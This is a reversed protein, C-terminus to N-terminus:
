PQLVFYQGQDTIEDQAPLKEVYSYMYWEITPKADSTSLHPAQPLFVDISSGRIALPLRDNITVLKGKDNRELTAQYTQKGKELYVFIYYDTESDLTYDLAWVYAVQKTTAAPPPLALQAEFVVGPVDGYSAYQAGARVIDLSVQEKARTDGAADARLRDADVAPVPARQAQPTGVAYLTGDDSGVYARGVAVVPSSLKGKLQFSWAEKGTRLDFAYVRGDEAGLYVIGDVVAPSATTRAPVFAKWMEKGTGTDLASVRTRAGDAAASVAVSSILALTAVPGTGVSAQWKAKGSTVDLATVSGSVGGVYLVQGLISPSALPSSAASPIRWRIKGDATNVAVLDGDIDAAYLSGGGVAPRILVPKNFRVSWLQRGDTLALAYLGGKQTGVYLGKPGVALPARVPEGVSKQWAIRGTVRDLAYVTGRETAFYATDGRVEPASSVAGDAQYTWRELGESTDVAYLRGGATGFLVAGELLAPAATIKGASPFGWGLVPQVRAGPM